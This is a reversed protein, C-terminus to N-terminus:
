KKVQIFEILDRLEVPSIAAELGEPMLSLGSSELRILNTRALIVKKGQAQLLAVSEATEL